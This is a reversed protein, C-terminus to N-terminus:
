RTVLVQYFHYTDQGGSFEFVCGATKGQVQLSENTASDGGIFVNNIITSYTGSYAQGVVVEQQQPADGNPNIIGQAANVQLCVDLPIGPALLIMEACASSQTDCGMQFVRNSTTVRWNGTYSADNIIDSPTRYTIGGGALSFVNCDDSNCNPNNHSSNIASFDLDNASIGKLLMTQIATEVSKSYRLLTSAKIRAKEIDGTQNVSSSNRSIISTLIGFLGILFLILWIANGHETRWTTM